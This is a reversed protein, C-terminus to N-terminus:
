NKLIKKPNKLLSSIKMKKGDLIKTYISYTKKEGNWKSKYYDIQKEKENSPDPNVGAVDFIKYNNQSGWKIINWTLFTGAELNKESNVVSHQIINGNFIVCYVGAIIKDEHKALFLKGFGEENLNRWRSMIFKENITSNEGQKKRSDLKLKSFDIAFTSRDAVVFELENKESKRIDYRTKKNLENYMEENNKELNTIYTAWRQKKYGFEEYPLEELKTYPPMSGRIMVANNKKAINEVEQLILKLIENQNDINHIIPGYFWNLIRRLKMRNNIAKVFVNSERWSMEDHLICSLQGVIQENNKITIFYPISGYSEEYIKSWNSLQYTTSAESKKLANEWETQNLSNSVKISYNM